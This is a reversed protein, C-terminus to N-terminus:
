PMVSLTLLTHSIAQSTVFHGVAQVDGGGLGSAAFGGDTQSGHLRQEPFDVLDTKEAGNDLSGGTFIYHIM